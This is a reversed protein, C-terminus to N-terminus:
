DREKGLREKVSKGWNEKLCGTECYECNEPCYPVEGVQSTYGFVLLDVLEDDTMQRIMDANTM